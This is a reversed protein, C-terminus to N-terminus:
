ECNECILNMQMVVVMAYSIAHAKKWYYKGNQPITWVEQMITQWDQGILHRKSPRIMALVAALQEVSAPKTKRLIDGYGNLHFIQNVFEDYMLLEWIPEKDILRKLHEENKVDKYVHVNLFDVKFYGRQAAQKYDITSIQNLPNHPIETFYVGTKHKQGNELKAIRHDLLGLVTDRNYFDIDIDTM